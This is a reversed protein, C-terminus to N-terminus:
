ASPNAVKDMGARNQALTKLVTLGGEVMMSRSEYGHEDSANGTYNIDMNQSSGYSSGHDLSTILAANIEFEILDTDKADRANWAFLILDKEDAKSPLTEKYGDAGYIDIAGFRQKIFTSAYGKGDVSYSMSISGSTSVQGSTISNTQADADVTVDQTDKSKNISKDTAMGIFYPSCKVYTDGDTLSAIEKTCIFPKNVWDEPFKSGSEAQTKVIVIDGVALATAVPDEAVDLFWALAKRGDMAQSMNKAM